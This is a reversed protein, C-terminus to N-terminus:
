KKTTTVHSKGETEYTQGMAKDLSAKSTNYDYLATVYNGRAESLKKEADLVDLNTGVGAEYRVIEINYDYAAKDLSEKSTHINKEATVLNLYAKQVDLLITDEKASVTEQAQRLIVEQKRVKARTVGNDFIDWSATLGVSWSDSGDHDNKFLESGGIGKSAVADVQPRAGAKATQVDAEYAKVDELAALYDPRHSLAYYLCDQFDLNYPMYQLDDAIHVPPKAPTGMDHLLTAVAVDYDNQTSVLNQQENALSVESSLIDARGVTGNAFCANVVRLHEQLNKVSDEYVQSQSKYKLISFYDKKVTEVITQKERDYTYGSANYGYQASKIQNELKGGTYLPLSVQV